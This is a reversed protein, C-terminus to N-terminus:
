ADAVPKISQNAKSGEYCISMFWLRVDWVKVNKAFMLYLGVYFCCSCMGPTLGVFDDKKKGQQWLLKIGMNNFYKGRKKGGYLSLGSSLYDM